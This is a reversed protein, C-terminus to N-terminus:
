PLIATVKHISIFHLEGRKLTQALGQAVEGLVWIERELDSNRPFRSEDGTRLGEDKGGYNALKVGLPDRLPREYSSSMRM